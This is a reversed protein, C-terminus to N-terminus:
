PCRRRSGGRQGQLQEAQSPTPKFAVVSFSVVVLVLAHTVLFVPAASLVCVHDNRLFSGVSVLSRRREESDMVMCAVDINDRNCKLIRIGEKQIEKMEDEADNENFRRDQQAEHSNFPPMDLARCIDQIVISGATATMALVSRPQVLELVSRIRLYSPRFNHGWQSMCHAEDICFLSVTPFLREKSNTEPNWRPRFLRRFSTSALREPSVFLIKLRGRVVDDIRAAMEATSMTGSLTTAPITPPLQQM